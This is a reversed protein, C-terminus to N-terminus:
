LLYPILRWKVTRRYARYADGYAAILQEEEFITFVYTVLLWLAVLASGIISRFILAVGLPWFTDCVYLPHRVLAYLGTTRLPENPQPTTFPQIRVAASGFVLATALIVGGLVPLAASPGFRPQNVFALPLLARPVEVLTVVAAGFLSNKGLTQSGIVLSALFWGVMSLLGWFFPDRWFTVFTVMGM